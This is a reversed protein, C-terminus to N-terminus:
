GAYVGITLQPYQVVIGLGDPRGRLYQRQRRIDRNGFQGREAIGVARIAHLLDDSAIIRLDLLVSRPDYRALQPADGFVRRQPM